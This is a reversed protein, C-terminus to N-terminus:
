QLRTRDMRSGRRITRTVLIRGLTQAPTHPAVRISWYLFATLVVGFVLILLAIMLFPFVTAMEAPVSVTGALVGILFGASIICFVTLLSITIVLADLQSRKPDQM